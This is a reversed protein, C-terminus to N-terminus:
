QVTELISLLKEGQQQWQPNPAPGLHPVNHKLIPLADLAQLFQRQRSEKLVLDKAIRQWTPHSLSPAGSPPPHMKKNCILIRTQQKQKPTLQQWLQKTEKVPLEELLSVMLIATKQPDQFLANVLSNSEYMPGAKTLDMMTKASQLMSLGHGTAPADVIILDWNENEAMNYIKGLHVAEHLGPAANM